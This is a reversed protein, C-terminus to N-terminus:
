CCLNAQPICLLLGSTGSNVAVVPTRAYMSEVPVIGFHEKDPTYLLCATRQLLQAKELISISRRQTV